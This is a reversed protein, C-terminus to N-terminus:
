FLQFRRRADRWKGFCRISRYQRCHQSFQWNGTVNLDLTPDAIPGPTVAPSSARTGGCACLLLLVPLLWSASKMGFKM